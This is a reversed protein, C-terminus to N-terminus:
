FQYKMHGRPRRDKPVRYTPHDAVFAKRMSDKRMLRSLFAIPTIMGYFIVSLIIRTSIWGLIYGFAMWAKHLPWLLSPWVAGLILLTTGLALAWSRPPEGRFLYPWAGIVAVVCGVLLGFGRLDPTSPSTEISEGIGKIM